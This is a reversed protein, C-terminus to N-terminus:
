QAPANTNASAPSERTESEPKVEPAQKSAKLVDEAPLIIISLNNRPGSGGGAPSVARMVYIGVVKGDLAFAPCGLGPTTSQMSTDPVYYTRPKQIVGIVRGLSAAYARSAARNLRDLSIIPDLLQAPGSSAFDVATMPNAPHTKPRIFALDLDKDRLVIEAPLETGDDLLMKIDSVTIEPTSRSEESIRRYMESPDCASLALVTLGSSDVVTGTTDQKMERSGSWKLVVQVTLVAHQYKDFVARGKESIEDARVPAASLLAAIPLALLLSHSSCRM